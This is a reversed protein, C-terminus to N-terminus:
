PCTIAVFNVQRITAPGEVNTIAAGTAAAIGFYGAEMGAPVSIDRATLSTMIWGGVDPKFTWDAPQGGFLTAADAPLKPCTAQPVGTASPPETQVIPTPQSMLFGVLGTPTPAPASAPPTGSAASGTGQTTWFVVGAAAGALVIVICSLLWALRVQRERKAQATRLVADMVLRVQAPAAGSKALTVQIQVPSNGLALLGEARAMLEASETVDGLCPEADPAPAAVPEAEAATSPPASPAPVAEPLPAKELLARADTVPLWDAAAPPLTYGAPAATLHLRSGGLELEFAAGCNGCTLQDAASAAHRVQLRAVECFPCCGKEAWADPITPRPTAVGL